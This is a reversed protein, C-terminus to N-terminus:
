RHMTFAIFVNQLTGVTESRDEMEESRVKVLRTYVMGGRISSVTPQPAVRSTPPPLLFIPRSYCLSGGEGERDRLCDGRGREQVRVPLQCVPSLENKLADKLESMLLVSGLGDVGSNSWAYSAM